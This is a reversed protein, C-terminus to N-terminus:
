LGKIWDTIDQLVEPSCTEEIRYYDLATAPQCHQFLHNLDPYEKILNKKNGNALLKRIANLNTSAIVQIDNSGNIAMVPVTVRAIDSAPDYDVFYDLWINKPQAKMEARIQKVTRNAPQGYLRLQANQQEALLTDGKIGTGAMSVLFDVANDAGLMFAIMGGESHGLVGIKDFDKNEKLWDIGAEADDAFDKSTGTTRSGTSKGTGRDDYRLSAIGNRALYDAIVWFPKHGFVEEDRNQAGSGTVMLVVPVRQGETYGVPYTLTGSFVANAKDNTFSVEETQYPFPAKPEQPRNPLVQGGPTLDLPLSMGNQTFTGKIANGTLKGTYALNVIPVQLSVSDKSLYQIAVPIGIASQAPIDLKVLDKGTKDKDFHFILALKQSVLDLEGHWSGQINQAQSVYSTMLISIIIFLSIRKM